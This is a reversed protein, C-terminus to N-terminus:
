TFFSRRLDVVVYGFLTESWPQGHFVAMRFGTRLTLSLCGMCQQAEVSVGPQVWGADLPKSSSGGLRSRSQRDHLPRPNPTSARHRITSSFPDSAFLPEPSIDVDVHFTLPTYYAEASASTPDGIEVVSASVFSGSSPSQSRLPRVNAMKKAKRKAHRFSLFTM